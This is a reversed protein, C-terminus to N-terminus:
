ITLQHMIRQAKSICAAICPVDLYLEVQVENIKTAGLSFSSPLFGLRCLSIRIKANISFVPIGSDFIRDPQSHLFWVTPLHHLHCRTTAMEEHGCRLSTAFDHGACM